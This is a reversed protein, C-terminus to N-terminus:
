REGQQIVSMINKPQLVNIRAKALCKSSEIHCEFVAMQGDQWVEHAHITLYSGLVFYDTMVSYSRTGLLLGINTDKGARRSQIGSYMAVTQAMYEIGVWAPVGLSSLFFLSDEGIQVGSKVWGNGAEIADDLLIMTGSHPLLEPVSWPLRSM